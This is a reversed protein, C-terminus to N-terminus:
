NYDKKKINIDLSYPLKEINKNFYSIEFSFNNLENLFIYHFNIRNKYIRFRFYRMIKEGSLLEIKEVYYDDVNKPFKTITATPSKNVVDIIIDAVKLNLKKITLNEKFDLVEFLVITDKSM